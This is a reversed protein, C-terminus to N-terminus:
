NVAEANETPCCLVDQAGTSLCDGRIKRRRVVGRHEQGELKKRKANENTKVINIIKNQAEISRGKTRTGWCFCCYYCFHFWFIHIHICTRKLHLKPSHNQSSNVWMSYEWCYIGRNNWFCTSLIIQQKWIKTSQLQSQSAFHFM